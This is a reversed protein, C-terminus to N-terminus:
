NHWNQKMSLEKSPNNLNLNLGMLSNPHGLEYCEESQNESGFMNASRPSGQEWARRSSNCHNNISPTSGNVDLELSANSFGRRHNLLCNAEHHPTPTAPLFDEEGSGSSATQKDTNKVTRYMQLHSKVHALTLDKVDMLELVSKPTARDHGGLLEVARIFRAHLSSTWRMRPARANRRSQIRPMLLRSRNNNNNYNCSFDSFGFHLSQQNQFVFQHNQNQHTIINQQQHRLGEVRIGNYRGVAEEEEQQFARFSLCPPPSSSLSTLQNRNLYRSSSFLGNNYVPIGRIPRFRDASVDVASTSNNSLSLETDVQQVQTQQWIDFSPSQNTKPPSIQLSLDPAIIDKKLM